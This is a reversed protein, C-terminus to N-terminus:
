ETVYLAPDIATIFPSPQRVRDDASRPGSLYLRSRARTLAVYFLRQEEALRGERIAHGRPLEGDSLGAIFVTDFELGKSQHITLLPIRDDENLVQDVYRILAASRVLKELATWPDDHHVDRQEVMRAFEDLHELREPERAYVDRLGSEAMMQHLVQAPRQMQALGRWRDLDDAWPAFAVGDREVIGRRQEAGRQVIDMLWALLEVTANVDARARHTPQHQLGLAACLGTLSFSPMESAGPLEIFRQALLLTDASSIVPVELGLMRSQNRLTRLDFGVNHGVVLDDGIFRFVSTLAQEPAEGHMALYEDSLGHARISDGVTASNRVLKEFQETPSGFELRTAAIEIVEAGADLGTSEIDLVVIRGGQYEDILRGFPEGYAHTETKILDVRELGVGEGAHQIRALTGHGVGQILRDTIRHMAATDNPNVTLRLLALADKVERRQLFDLHELTVHKISRATLAESLGIGYRNNATLVGIRHGAAGPEQHIAEIRDAIWAGEEEPSEALRWVALPGDLADVTSQIVPGDPRFTAAAFCEAISVLQPTSRRNERLSIERVPFFDQRFQGIISDPASGRWEYITQDVDGFLALNGTARALMFVVRYESKHTDQIEDVMISEYREAWRSRAEPVRALVSNTFLVLDSFDLLHQNWLQEQYRRAARTLNGLGSYMDAYNPPWTLQRSKVESKIRGLKLFVDRADKSTRGTIEALLDCADGDDCITFQTPIGLFRAEARLITACLGHFTSVAVQCEQDPFRKQIRSRVEEAARNTFTLCLMRRPDHGAVIAAAIREILAYTKGSGVPALVLLGGHLHNIIQWQPDDFDV